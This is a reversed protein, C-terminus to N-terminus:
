EGEILLPQAGGDTHLDLLAGVDATIEDRTETCAQAHTGALIADYESQPVEFVQGALMVVDKTPHRSTSTIQVRVRKEPKHLRGCLPCEHEIDPNLLDSENNPVHM